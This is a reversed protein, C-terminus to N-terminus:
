NFLSQIESFSLPRNYILIDDIKGFFFDATRRTNRGINIPYTNSTVLGSMLIENTFIGDFYFQVRTGDYTVAVQHWTNTSITAEWYNETHNIGGTAIDLRAKVPNSQIIIEYGPYSNMWGKSILRGSLNSNTVNIWGVITFQDGLAFISNDPISIYGTGDFNYASNSNGLRDETLTVGGHTTGNNGNGSEDNANGNFPYYAILGELPILGQLSFTISDIEAITFTSSSGDNKHIILGQSFSDTIAFLFILILFTKKM